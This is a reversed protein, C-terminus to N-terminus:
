NTCETNSLLHDHKKCSTGADKTLGTVKEAYFGKQRVYIYKHTCEWFWFLGGLVITVKL